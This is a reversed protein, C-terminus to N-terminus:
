RGKEENRQEGREYERGWTTAKGGTAGRRTAGFRWAEVQPARAQRRAFAGLDRMFVLCPRGKRGRFHARVALGEGESAWEDMPIALPGGESMKIIDDLSHGLMAEVPQQAM